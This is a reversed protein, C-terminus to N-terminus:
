GGFLRRTQMYVMFRESSIDVEARRASFLPFKQSRQLKPLLRTLRKEMERELWDLLWGLDPKLEVRVRRDIDWSDVVLINRNEIRVQTRIVADGYVDAGYSIFGIKSRYSFYMRAGIDFANNGRYLPGSTVRLNHRTIESQVKSVILEPVIKLGTDAWDPLANALPVTQRSRKRIAGHIRVLEGFMPAYFDVDGFGLDPMKPVSVPREIRELAKGVEKRVLAQFEPSIDGAPCFHPGRTIFKAVREGRGPPQSLGVSANVRAEHIRGFDEVRIPVDLTVHGDETVLCPAGHAHRMEANGDQEVRIRNGLGFDIERPEFVRGLDIRSDALVRTERRVIEIDHTLATCYNLAKRFPEHAASLGKAAQGLESVGHNVSEATDVLRAAVTSWQSAEETRQELHVLIQNAL